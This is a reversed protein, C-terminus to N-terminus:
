WRCCHYLLGSSICGNVKGWCNLIDDGKCLIYLLEKLRGEGTVFDTGDIDLGVWLMVVEVNNAMPVEMELIDFFHGHGKGDDM